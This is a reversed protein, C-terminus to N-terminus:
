RNSKSHFLCDSVAWSLESALIWDVNARIVDGAQLGRKGCGGVTHQAFIKEALTMPRTESARSEIPTAPRQVRDGSNLSELRAELIFLIEEYNHKEISSRDALGLGGYNPSDTAKELVQQIADAEVPKSLAELRTSLTLLTESLSEPGPATWALSEHAVGRLRQLADVTDKWLLEFSDCVKSTEAM